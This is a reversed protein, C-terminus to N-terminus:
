WPSHMCVMWEACICNLVNVPYHVDILALLAQIGTLCLCGKCYFIKSKRWLNSYESFVLQEVGKVHYVQIFHTAILHCFSHCLVFLAYMKMIGNPIFDNNDIPMYVKCSPVFLIPRENNFLYM